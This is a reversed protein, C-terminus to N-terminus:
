SFLAWMVGERSYVLFVKLLIRSFAHATRTYNEDENFPSYHLIVLKFLLPSQMYLLYNLIRETFLKIQDISILQM